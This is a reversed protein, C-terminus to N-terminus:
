QRLQQILQQLLGSNTPTVGDTFDGYDAAEFGCPYGWQDMTFARTACVGDYVNDSISIFGCNKHENGNDTMSWVDV